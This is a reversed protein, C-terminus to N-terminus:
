EGKLYNITKDLIAHSYTYSTKLFKKIITSSINELFCDLDFLLAVELDKEEKNGFREQIEKKSVPGLAIRFKTNNQSFVLIYALDSLKREIELNKTFENKYLKSILLDKLKSFSNEFESLYFFRVGIRTVDRIELNSTVNELLYSSLAKFNDYPGVDKYLLSAGRSTLTFIRQSEEKEKQDYMDIRAIDLWWHPLKEKFKECTEIRKQHYGLIPNFRIECIVQKIFPTKFKM